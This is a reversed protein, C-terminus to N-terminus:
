NYKIKNLVEELTLKLKKCSFNNEYYNFAIEELKKKLDHNNLLINSNHLLEHFSRNVVGGNIKKIIGVDYSLFTKKLSIGEILTLPMVETKSTNVIFECNSIMSILNIENQHLLIIRDSKEKQIIKKIKKLYNKDYYSYIIILKISSELNMILKIQDIQNKLSNLYGISLIYRGFTNKNINKDNKEFKSFNNYSILKNKKFFRFIRTDLLRHYSSFKDLTMFYDTSLLTIVLFPFYLINLIIKLPYLFNLNYPILSIGHSIVCTKIGMQRGIIVFLESSITQLSEVFIVDPKEKKLLKFIKIINLKKNIFYDCNKSNGATVVENKEKLLELHKVTCTGLGTIITDNWQTSFLIIKM